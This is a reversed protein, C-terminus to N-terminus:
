GGTKTVPAPTDATTTGTSSFPPYPAALPVPESRSLDIADHSRRVAADRRDSTQEAPVDTDCGNLLLATTLVALVAYSAHGSHTRKSKQPPGRTAPPRGGREGLEHFHDDPVDTHVPM